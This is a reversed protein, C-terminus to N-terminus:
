EEKGNESESYEWSRRPSIVKDSEKDYQFLDEAKLDYVVPNLPISATINQGQLLKLNNKASYATDAFVEEVTVVTQYGEL